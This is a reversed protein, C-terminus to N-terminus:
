AGAELRRLLCRANRDLLGVFFLNGRHEVLTVIRPENENALMPTAASRLYMRRQAECYLFTEGNWVAFVVSEPIELTAGSQLRVHRLCRPLLNDLVTWQDAAGELHVHGGDLPLDRRRRDQLRQHGAAQQEPAVPVAQVPSQAVSEM